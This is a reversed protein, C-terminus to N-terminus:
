GLVGPWNATGLAINGPVDRLWLERARLNANLYLRDEYITWAEPITPATYGRSVAFACYGGFAPLYKQPDAIFADRNAATSFLWTAGDQDASYAPDGAVPARETFYAVVDTGGVAYGDKVFVPPLAARVATATVLPTAALLALLSRRTIQTM